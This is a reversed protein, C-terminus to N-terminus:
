IVDARFSCMRVIKSIDDKRDWNFVALVREQKYADEYHYRSEFEDKLNQRVKNLLTVLRADARGLRDDPTAVLEGHFKKTPDSSKLHGAENKRIIM